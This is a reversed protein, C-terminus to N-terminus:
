RAESSLIKLHVLEIKNLSAKLIYCHLRGIKVVTNVPPISQHYNLILGALTEYDDSTEIHLGYKENIYDIELRGSFIYEFDNIKRDEHETTDHEDQIEGFIEEMIDEITVIGSTGGFEDVVVAVSRKDKMLRTLLKNAHMTEPVLTIPRIIPKISSPNKFFEAHHVYGIIQDITQEYILIKSYGSDIFKQRLLDLPENVNHGVVETRPIMCERVRTESFELANRFIKMNHEDHDNHKSQTTTQTNDLLTNIDVKGFPQQQHLGHKSTQRLINKIFFDSFKTTFVAIPYFAIYFVFAPVSFYSLTFDPNNRFFAKPLFEATLLIFLTSVVTQILLVAVESSTLYNRIIPELVSGAEIGYVVIAINNGILMTAIYMSPNTLFLSIIRASFAHNKKSLELKLRNASLFAIEMGSFFASFLLSLLIPFLHPM